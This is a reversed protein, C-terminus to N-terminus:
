FEAVAAHLAQLANRTGPLEVRHFSRSGAACSESGDLKRHDSSHRGVERKASSVQGVDGQLQGPTRRSAGLRQAHVNPVCPHPLRLRTAYPKSCLRQTTM